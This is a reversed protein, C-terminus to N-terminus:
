KSKKRPKESKKILTSLNTGLAKAILNAVHLSPIRKKRELLGITTKHVGAIQALKERTIGKEERIEKILTLFSSTLPDTNPQDM